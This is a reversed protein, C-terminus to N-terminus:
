GIDIESEKTLWKPNVNFDLSEIKNTVHHTGLKVYKEHSWRDRVRYISVADEDTSEAILM